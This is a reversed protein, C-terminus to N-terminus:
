HSLVSPDGQSWVVNMTWKKIRWEGKVKVFVIWYRAGALFKPGDAEAGRGPPAHQNMATATLTATDSGDELDIRIGSVMHTTDMPGIHSLLTSRITELGNTANGNLVFSVDEGAFASDFFSINNEDFAMLARYLTDTIAERPSLSKLALPYSM